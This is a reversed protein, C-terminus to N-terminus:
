ESQVQIRRPQSRQPKPVRVALVGEKLKAEIAEGDVDGPLRVRYEFEGVRRTRRRLIGTREKEKMEGRIVLEGDQLDVNVDDKKVGPLDAEIIWADDTEEIDVDPVWMTGPAAQQITGGLLDELLRDMQERMDQIDTAPRAPRGRIMGRNPQRVGPVHSM